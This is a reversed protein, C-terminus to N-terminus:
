KVWSFKQTFTGQENSIQVIYVGSEENFQVAQETAQELNITAIQKGTISYIRATTNATTEGRIVLQRDNVRTFVQFAGKEIDDIGLASKMSTRVFFRGTGESANDLQVAYEVEDSLNTFVNMARDELVVAYDEPINLSKASFTVIEGAKADLGIPIILNDYDEPLCQMGFDVGNDEVLRSYLSLNPNSAFLGADYGIDLGKNMDSRYLISTSTKANSIEANLRISAWTSEKTSKFDVGTQHSQMLATM